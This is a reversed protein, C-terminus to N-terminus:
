ARVVIREIRRTDAIETAIQRRSRLIKARCIVGALTTAVADASFMKEVVNRGRTALAGRQDPDRALEDLIKALAKIDGEPYTRGGGTTNVVWPIQGSEAGVVPTGCWLAEVLVRGFQEEWTATTRSPLVLLDMETFLQNMEEHRHGVIVDVSPASRHLQDRMPGDGVLLLRAPTEMRLVAAVLDELGKEPVLRGAFGVTFPGSAERERRTPWSPVAHPVIAVEGRAGWKTALSRAAPSRAMVFGARRLVYNRSRVIPSPYPRDLTEAVQVGFPVALISAAMGWELAALSHSEEEVVLVDPQFRRLIGILNGVYAHRQPRGIGVTRLPIIADEMGGLANPLFKKERYVDSWRDPVVLKLKYGRERLCRFVEQNAAVVCAHSVVLLDLGSHARMQEKTVGTAGHDGFVDQFVQSQSGM